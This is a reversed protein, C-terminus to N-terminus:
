INNTILNCFLRCVLTSLIEFERALTEIFVFSFSVPRTIIFLFVHDNIIEELSFVSADRFM